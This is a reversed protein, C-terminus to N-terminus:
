WALSSREDDSVCRRATVDCTYTTSATRLQILGSRSLSAIVDGGDPAGLRVDLRGAGIRFDIAGDFTHDEVRITGNMAILFRAWYGARGPEYLYLAFKGDFFTRYTEGRAVIDESCHDAEGWAVRELHNKRMVATLRVRGETCRHTVEITADIDFPGGEDSLIATGAFRAALSDLLPSVYASVDARDFFDLDASAANVTVAVDGFALDGTPDEYARVLPELDPPTPVELESECGLIGLVLGARFAAAGLGRWGHGVRKSGSM